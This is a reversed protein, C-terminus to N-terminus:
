RSHLSQALIWRRRQKCQNTPQQDNDRDYTTFMMSNHYALANFSGANGSYGAVM